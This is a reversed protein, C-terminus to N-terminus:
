RSRAKLAGWSTRETPVAGLVVVVGVMLFDEHTRCYFPFTGPTEYLHQFVPNAADLPVDFITGNGAESSSLGNTVTHAGILRQWQVIEGVGIVVTDIPTGTPSNDVDFNISFARFTVAPTGEASTGVRPNAAFWADVLAQMEAESMEHAGHHAAHPGPAAAPPDKAATGAGALLLIVISVAALAVFPRVAPMRPSM